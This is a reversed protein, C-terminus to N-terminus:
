CASRLAASRSGGGPLLTSGFGAITHGFPAQIKAWLSPTYSRYGCNGNRMGGRKSAYQSPHAKGTGPNGILIISERNDLYACRMLEMVLLRNISPQATFDFGDLTKLNPFRAAKLRRDAARKEREILELECLQLLFGLHDVNDCACRGAVKECEAHITPLRLAKLHHKLLVMSKTELKKM